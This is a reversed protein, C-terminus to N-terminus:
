RDPYLRRYHGANRMVGHVYLRTETIPIADVWEELESPLTQLWREVRGPGGNYAAAAYEVRGFKDIMNALYAVGLKINLQPNYLQDASIAGRGQKRAVLKGTSPLLQMLGLANARSRALPEFVSEQRILGAVLYPDLGHRAAEEKITQWELLPYFIEMVERPAENGLYLTYDPHARSLTQVAKLNQNNNRYVRAMALNVRPSTPTERRLPELEALAFDDLGIVELSDAREIAPMVKEGATEPLSVVPKITGLARALGPNAAVNEAKMNRLQVLHREALMGYFSAKYRVLLAEYIAIARGPRGSREADRGAWYASQARYDTEPFNALHELLADSAEAYRKDKHLQWAARFSVADAEKTKAYNKILLSRYREALGRDGSDEYYKVLSALLDAAQEPAPQQAILQTAVDVFQAMLKLKLLSQALYYRADAYVEKDTIAVKQLPVIADRYRGSRYYSSGLRYYNRARAAQDPYSTFLKVFTDAARVYQGHEFLKDARTQELKYNDKGAVPAAQLAVLRAHAAESENSYPIEFYIKRYVEIAKPTKQQAEYSQGVIMLAATDRKDDDALEGLEKVAGEPDQLKLALEAAQLRSQRAMLSRPYRGAMRAFTTRANVLDGLERYASAQYYLAYDGLNAGAQILEEDFLKISGAFDRANYHSYSRLLRALAAARTKPYNREFQILQDDSPKGGAREVVARLQAVAADRDNAGLIEPVVRLNITSFLGILCLPLALSGCIRLVRSLKQSM